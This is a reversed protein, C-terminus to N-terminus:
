TSRRRFLGPTGLPNQPGVGCGDLADIQITRYIRSSDVIKLASVAMWALAGEWYAVAEEETCWLCYSCGAGDCIGNCYLLTPKTLNNMRGPARLSDPRHRLDNFWDDTGVEMRNYVAQQIVAVIKPPSSESQYVPTRGVVCVIPDPSAGLGDLWQLLRTQSEFAHVIANGELTAPQQTGFDIHDGPNVGNVIATEFWRPPLNSFVYGRDRGLHVTFENAM